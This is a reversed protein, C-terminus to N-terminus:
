EKTRAYPPVYPNKIQHVADVAFAAGDGHCTECTEVQNGSADTWTMLAAHGFTSADDHCSTCVRASPALWARNVCTGGVCSQGVGCPSSSSCSGGADAHCKTCNRIDQPFLADSMDDLTNLYGLLSLDGPNPNNNREAYGGRLRAYHIDHILISFDIPQGPTPDVTVVCTDLVSDGNTDKCDEWGAANGPCQAAATCAMGKSGITRDVAGRTHCLSCADARLQRSGGHAQVRVHCGNCADAIIVQRPAISQGAGLAFDIVANAADRAAGGAVSENVYAWVTYTGPPNARSYPATTNLPALAQAVIASPLMYTYLKTTADFSLAGSSKMSIPGLIRQRDDTPGGVIVTGSLKANTALDSVINGAADSLQFKVVITDGVQFAGGSASGGSLTARTMQLGRSATRQLIAHVTPIAVLGSADATHCTSCQADDSQIPHTKRMCSGSPLDCTVLYGFAACSADSTCPGSSPPGFSRPPNLTGTDFFLNDHCTGCALRSPSTKWRDDAHCKTCDLEAGPMSPFQVNTFEALTADTGLGYEPHAVGPSTLNGGRHVGHVKRVAPNASYGDLNHCLKCNAIPTQDLAWNGLPSYGPFIHAEYSKGSLTGLHCAYCSSQASPGSAYEERQATGIQLELSPLIQDKEDSSKAWVGLTYTGAPEDSIAGLTFTLTGDAAQSLNNQTPDAFKPARLNILHHQHDPATRDTVCNLLKSATRTLAGDRPGSLLLEATGLEAVTIAGCSNTFRITVVPREGTAYFQGNAPPTISLSANLGATQGSSLGTCGAAGPAGPAGADGPVGAEGAAGSPGEPGVPGAVGAPGECAALLFLIPVWRASRM